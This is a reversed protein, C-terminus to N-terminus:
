KDNRDSSARCLTDHPQRFRAAVGIHLLTNGENQKNQKLGNPSPASRECLTLTGMTWLQSMVSEKCHVYSGPICCNKVKVPHGILNFHTWTQKNLESHRIKLNNNLIKTKKTQVNLKFLFHITCTTRINSSKISPYFVCKTIRFVVDGMQEFPFFFSYENTKVQIFFM